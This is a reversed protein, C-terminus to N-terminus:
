SGSCTLPEDANVEPRLVEQEALRQALYAIGGAWPEEIRVIAGDAADADFEAM